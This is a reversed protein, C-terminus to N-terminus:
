IVKYEFSPGTSEIATPLNRIANLLEKWQHERITWSYFTDAYQKEAAIKQTYTKDEKIITIANELMQMHMHAHANADEDWNYMLTLNAATEYLAGFNPHVCLLGASMAEMLSICSTELWISPYAFIHSKALAKRVKENSVTGHYTMKEHSNITDFLKAFPKDRDPWGYINFSSFVDLHLNDHKKCLEEFVPVLLQLGRHPTTHYVLNIKKTQRKSIDVDIPEIANQLVLTRSWPINYRSIYQQQQWNSVFVIAHFKKWGNNALHESEPDQPLDHCYLVRVKNPNLERVRSPIIQFPELFESGLKEYLKTMMMETGGMANKNVENRWQDTM